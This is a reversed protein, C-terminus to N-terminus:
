MRRIELKVNDKVNIKVELHQNKVNVEIPSDNLLVTFGNPYQIQPVYIITPEDITTDNNFELAFRGTKRNFSITNLKGTLHKVYPRCFGEIARGGSNIDKPNKQQDRSFISLDELNWLDGWENCNDATYNWITYNLLNADMCDLHLTLAEVHKKWNGDKYARKNYMNFPIGFEGIITPCNNLQQSFKRINGLQNIFLNKVNPYFLKIKRTQTDITFHKFFRRLYLTIGDYWHSANVINKADNSTWQKNSSDISTQLASLIEYPDTEIFIMADNDVKQIMNAFKNIFPKLYNWFFNTKGGESFYHPKKLIPKGVSDEEYIGVEKWIDKADPLWCSISNPNALKTKTHKMQVGKIEYYPINMPYGGATAITEFGSFRLGWALNYSERLDSKGIFGKNPENWIDYGIVYPLDKTIKLVENIAKLYQDQLYDQITKNDIKFNPAFENGGFFLTFMTATAFLYYNSSWIMLPYEEPYKKQMILAADTENFATFDLGVKEFTWGPAGDGGSMRSWVDQHPDIFCYFEYENAKELIKKLYQLYNRDYIGPGAHEIAEWTILFRLCNFGWHKLRSFHEDAEKLPFPRGIFSVEKHDSFDTKIHTAGDPTKPVKTSGGLNVGRLLVTRNKEDIFKDEKIRLKM